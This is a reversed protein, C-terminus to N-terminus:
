RYRCEKGVRREESRTIDDQPVQEAFRKQMNEISKTIEKDSAVVKYHAAEYKSLYITMEPEYGVEFAVSLQVATHDFDNVPLPVLQGVMKLNNENIYNNLSDNVLKNIEEFAIPAEYQRKALSMPVKGKRFGPVQANKAYNHLQKEVKDKYDARDVTVTLLASVEDHNKATVNMTIDFNLDSSRRTPF